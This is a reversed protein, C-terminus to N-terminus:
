QKMEFELDVIETVLTKIEEVFQSLWFLILKFFTNTEFTKLM